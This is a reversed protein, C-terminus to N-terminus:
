SCLHREQLVQVGPKAGRIGADGGGAKDKCGSIVTSFTVVLLLLKFISKSNKM